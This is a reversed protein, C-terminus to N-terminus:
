VTAKRVFEKSPCGKTAAALPSLVAPLPWQCDGPHIIEEDDLPEGCFEGHAYEWQRMLEDRLEAILMDANAISNKM